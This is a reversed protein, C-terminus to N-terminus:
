GTPAVIITSSSASRMSSMPKRGESRMIRSFSGAFRWVISKEAVM